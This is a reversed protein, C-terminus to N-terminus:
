DKQNIIINCYRSDEGKTIEEVNGTEPNVGYKKWMSGSRKSNVYERGLRGKLYGPDWGDGKDTSVEERVRISAM